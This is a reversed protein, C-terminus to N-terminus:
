SVDEFNHFKLGNQGQGIAQALSKGSEKNGNGDGALIAGSIDTASLQSPNYDFRVFNITLAGPQNTQKDDPLLKDVFHRTTAPDEGSIALSEYRDMVKDVAGELRARARQAATLQEVIQKRSPRGGRKARRTTALQNGPEFPM